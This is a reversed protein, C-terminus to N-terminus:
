ELPTLHFGSVAFYERGDAFRITYYEFEKLPEDDDKAMATDFSVITATQGDREDFLSDCESLVFEERAIDNINFRVQQGDNLSPTYTKM